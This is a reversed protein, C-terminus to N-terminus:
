GVCTAEGDKDRHGSHQRQEDVPRGYPQQEHHPPLVGCVLYPLRTNLSHYESRFTPTIMM